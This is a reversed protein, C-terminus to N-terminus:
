WEMADKEEEEFDEAFFREIANKAQKKIEIREWNPDGQQKSIFNAIAKAMVLDDHYGEQAELKGNEKRVFTLMEQLTEVDKESSPNDRFDAILNSIIVRKTKQNTDFGVVKQVEKLTTDVRERMYLNPYNLDSLERAPAYSFNTEVAILANNYYVGLCYLQEAYKDEDMRQKRLTAVSEQGDNTVVKATYYDNGMGSTDGGLSYRRKYVVGSEDTEVEPGKHIKILGNEREVFKIDNIHKIVDVVEGQENKITELTKTYVFEGCKEKREEKRELAIQKVILDKDFVCEGSALFAEEPCAPYEQKFTNLDGGCNNRICWRRWVIQEDDLNYLKKLDQEEETLVFGAPVPMRYEELEHWACFLPEFDSEGAVAKDWLEKFYDFGKATSEIIILTNPLNPVAQLLGDLLEKANKWSSLESLHLNQFTDSRGVGEGEATMCKIKSNLGTGDKTDFIIEQANSAKTQPRVAKPLEKLFLKSMNFLNTTAESKHAIIGSTINPATATRKLIIGESETSFGMQRAKLIIVRMPKKAESQRKLLDYLKQQPKNLRFPIVKGEKTKIKLFKEIYKKTNIIM